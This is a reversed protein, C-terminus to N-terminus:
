MKSLDSTCNLNTKYCMRKVARAMNKIDDIGSHLHGEHKLGLGDLIQM